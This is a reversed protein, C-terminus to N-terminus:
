PVQICDAVNRIRVVRVERGGGGANLAAMDTTINENKLPRIFGLQSVWAVATIDVFLQSPCFNAAPYVFM